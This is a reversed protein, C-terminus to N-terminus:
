NRIRIRPDIEEVIPNNSGKLRIDYVTFWFDEYLKNSRRCKRKNDSQCHIKGSFKGNKSVAVSKGHYSSSQNSEISCPTNTNKFLENCSIYNSKEEDKFFVIKFDEVQKGNNGICRKKLAKWVLKAKHKFDGKRYLVFPESDEYALLYAKKAPACSEAKAQISIATAFLLALPYLSKKVITRIKM